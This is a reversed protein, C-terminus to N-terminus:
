YLGPLWTDTTHSLSFRKIVTIWNTETTVKRCEDMKMCIFNNNFLDFHFLFKSITLVSSQVTGKFIFIASLYPFDLLNLGLEKCIEWFKLPPSKRSWGRGTKHLFGKTRSEWYISLLCNRKQVDLCHSSVTKKYFFFFFFFFFPSSVLDNFTKRGVFLKTLPRVSVLWHVGIAGITVNRATGLRTRLCKDKYPWHKSLFFTYSCAYSTTPM